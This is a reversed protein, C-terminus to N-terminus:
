EVNVGLSLGPRLRDGVRCFLVNCLPPRSSNSSVAPAARSAVAGFSCGGMASLSMQSTHVPGFVPGRPHLLTFCRM